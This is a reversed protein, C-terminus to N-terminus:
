QLARPPRPRSLASVRPSRSPPALLCASTQGQSAPDCKERMWAICNGQDPGGNDGDEAGFAQWNYKGAVVLSNILGM